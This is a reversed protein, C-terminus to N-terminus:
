GHKTTHLYCILLPLSCLSQAKASKVCVCCPSEAGKQLSTRLQLRTQALSHLRRAVFLYSETKVTTYYQGQTSTIASSQTVCTAQRKRINAVQSILLRNLQMCTHLISSPLQLIVNSILFGRQIPDTCLSTREGVGSGSTPLIPPTDTISIIIEIVGYFLLPQLM